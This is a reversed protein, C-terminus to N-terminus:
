DYYTLRDTYRMAVANDALSTVIVFLENKSPIVGSGFYRVEQAIKPFKVRIRHKKGLEASAPTAGIAVVPAINYSKDALIRFTGSNDWDYLGLPNFAGNDTTSNLVMNVFSTNSTAADPNYKFQCIIVRVVDWVTGALNVLYFNLDYSKLTIKDGIREGFDSDGPSIERCPFISTGPTFNNLINFTTGFTDMHKREPRPLNRVTRTLRMVRRGLTPRRTTTRRRRAVSRRRTSAYRRAFPM